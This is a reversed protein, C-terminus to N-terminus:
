SKSYETSVSSVKVCRSRRLDEPAKLNEKWASRAIQGTPLLLRAWKAIRPGSWNVPAENGLLGEEEVIYTKIVRGEDGEVAHAYEEKARLLVYGDGLDLSGRPLTTKTRDLQPFIAKMANTQCRRLGRESLNHYPNSPQGIEGGLDGVVREMTWASYLVVPGLRVTEPATHLLAHLCPRIFHIRDARRKVYINEFETFFNQLARHGHQILILPIKQQHLRRVGYVLKCFNRWYPKPLVNHLLAPALGYLYSQWEKAKYRSSIKEAINRPPRDFSGPMYQRSAGVQEGHKKWMAGTLVAWDWDAVSDTSACQFTGRWLPLLLEGINLTTAHMADGPFGAPIPLRHRPSLGSFISSNSIGTNKRREKYDTAHRSHLLHLLNKNYEAPSGGHIEDPDVDPHNCGPVDYNDPKLLAPYYHPVGPKHRGKLDCYLRCPYAGHHGVLGTFHVSGPGDAGGLYLFPHSTFVRDELSDWVRLGEKQLAALHYFGPFFFSDTNKPNNPGPIFGGPLVHKKKYRLEPPLDFIVWIYIWCDSTKDQYLQAGDMSYMLVMDDTSIDGRAVAELYERGHYIDSYEQIYGGNAPNKLEETIQSTCRQRHHMNNAGEPTRWLAQLQPGLPITYFHQRSKKNGPTAAEALQDYRAENCMPCVLCTAYPGTYAICSNPCMDHVIPIVGTIAAIEKKIAAHSLLTIDPHVETIDSCIDTYAQQSANTTSIFLKLSLLIDTDPLEFIHQPPNRIRTLTEADLDGNNLTAKELALRFERAIRLEEVHPVFDDSLPEDPEREVSGHRASIDEEM